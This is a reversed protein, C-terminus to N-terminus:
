HGGHGGDRPGLGIRDRQGAGLRNLARERRLRVIAGGLRLTQDLRHPRREITPRRGGGAATAADAHLAARAPSSRQSPAM